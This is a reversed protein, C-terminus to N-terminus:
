EGIARTDDPDTVTFGVLRVERGDDLRVRKGQLPDSARKVRFMYNLYDAMSGHPSAPVVTLHERPISPGVFPYDVEIDLTGHLRIIPM